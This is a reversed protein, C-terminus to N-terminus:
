FFKQASFGPINPMYYGGTQTETGSNILVDPKLVGIIKRCM